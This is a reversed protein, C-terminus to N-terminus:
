RDDVPSRVHGIDRKVDKATDPVPELVAGLEVLENWAEFSEIDAADPKKVRQQAREIVLKFASLDEREEKQLKALFLYNLPNEPAAAIAKEFHAAADKLSGGLIGPVKQDILGLVRDPGGYAYSADLEAARELNKRVIGLTAITRFIGSAQGYLARNIGAWFHCPACEPSALAAASAVDRGEGLIALKEDRDETLRYGVYQCAAAFKWAAEVSAPDALRAQRFCALAERARDPIRRDHFAADGCALPPVPTAGEAAGALCAFLLVWPRM